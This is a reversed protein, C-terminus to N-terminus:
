RIFKFRKKTSGFVKRYGRTAAFESETLKLSRAHNYLTKKHMVWGDTAVYWYDPPVERDLVFNCAKYLAGDHNFTQDAYTVICKYQKPLLKICRSLFWSSFNKRQYSPHVCFRSLERVQDKHFGISTEMNQRRIASFMAVAILNNNYYAGMTLSGLPATPLYHYKSLLLRYEVAPAHKIVVNALKYDVFNQKSLGLWYKLTEVIRDKNMFEHEWLYKIEYQDSLHNIIYSQKTLDRRTAKESSHWYDGQCEILLTKQHPRPIACDFIYPGVMCGMDAPADKHERSHEVGLGDLISYLIKQISSIRPMLSRALAMKELVEPRMLSQIVKNRYNQDQWLKTASAKLSESMKDRYNQDQWQKIMIRQMVARWKPDGARRKCITVMKQRYYPDRWLQLHLATMREVYVPDQWLRKTSNSLKINGILSDIVKQRYEGDQWLRKGRIRFVEVMRRRYEGNSWRKKSASSLKRRTEERQMSELHNQKKAPDSWVEKMIESMREKDCPPKGDRVADRYADDAWLKRSRESVANKHEQTNCAVITAATTRITVCKKCEWYLQGDVVDAVRTLVIDGESRTGNAYCLDCYVSLRKRYKPKDVGFMALTKQWDIM